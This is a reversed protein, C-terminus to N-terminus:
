ILLLFEFKILTYRIFSSKLKDLFLFVKSFIINFFSDKENKLIYKLLLQENLVSFCM